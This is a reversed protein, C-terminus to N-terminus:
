TEQSLFELGDFVQLKLQYIIVELPLFLEKVFELDVIVDEVQLLNM